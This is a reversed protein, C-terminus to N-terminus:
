LLWYKIGSANRIVADCMNKLALARHSIECKKAKPMQAFSENSNDPLFCADWGFGHVGSPDVIKGDVRGHFLRIEDSQGDSYGVICMAYATKDEYASVLKHLGSPGLAKLFWKVYQGPLGNLANFCLSSDEVFFPVNLKEKAAKCKNIVIDESSGQIEVLSMSKFVVDFHSSLIEKAESYKEENETVFVIKKVMALVFATTYKQLLDAYSKGFAPYDRGLSSSSMCLTRMFIAVNSGLRVSQQISYLIFM